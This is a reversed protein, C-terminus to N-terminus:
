GELDTVKGKHLEHRQCDLDSIGEIGLICKSLTKDQGVLVVSVVSEVVITKMDMVRDFRQRPSQDRPM